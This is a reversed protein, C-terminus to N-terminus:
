EEKAAIDRERKLKAVISAWSLHYGLGVLRLLGVLSIEMFADLLTTAPGMGATATTLMWGEIGSYIAFRRACLGDVIAAAVDEPKSTDSGDSIAKTEPPKLEEEAELQPTDTDGPYAVSVSIGHPKLEMHLAEAMGRVAFKSASYATYGYLGVLGALSSVFVIAGSGKSKMYPVAARAAMAGGTVNLALLRNWVASDLEEFNGPHTAGASNILVDIRGSTKMIRAFGAKVARDDSMDISAVEVVCGEPGATTLDDAADNLKALNRAVITVSAGRSLVEQPARESANPAASGRAAAVLFCTFAHLAVRGRHASAVPAGCRLPSAQRPQPSPVARARLRPRSSVAAVAKGIGSSGGTIVVHKGRLSLRRPQCARSLLAIALVNCVMCAVAVLLQQWLPLASFWGWQGTVFDGLQGITDM